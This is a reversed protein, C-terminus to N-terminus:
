DLQLNLVEVDDGGSAARTTNADASREPTAYTGGGRPGPRPSSVAAGLGGGMDEDENNLKARRARAVMQLNSPVDPDAALQKLATDVLDRDQALSRDAEELRELFSTVVEAHESLPLRREAILRAMLLPRKGDVPFVHTAVRKVRGNGNRGDPKAHFGVLMRDTLGAERVLEPDLRVRESPTKITVIPAPPNSPDNGVFRFVVRGEQDMYAWGRYTGTRPFRNRLSRTVGFRLGDDDRVMSAGMLGSAKEYIDLWGFRPRNVDVRGVELSQRRRHGGRAGDHARGRCNDSKKPNTVVRGGRRDTRKAQEAVDPLLDDLVIPAFGTVEPRTYISALSNRFATVMIIVAPQIHRLRRIAPLYDADGSLIVAGDPRDPALGRETLRSALSVDVGKEVAQWLRERPNSSARRTEAALHRGGFDLAQRVLRFGSKAALSTLQNQRRRAEEADDPHVNAPSAAFVYTARCVVIRQCTGVSAEDAGDDGSDGTVMGLRRAFEAVAVEVLHVYDPGRLGNRQAGCRLNSLDLFVEVQFAGSRAETPGNATAAPASGALTEADSPSVARTDTLANDM